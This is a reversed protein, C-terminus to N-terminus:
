ARATIDNQHQRPCHPGFPQSSSEGIVQVSSLLQWRGTHKVARVWELREIEASFYPAELLNHILALIDFTSGGRNCGASHRASWIGCLPSGTEMSLAAAAGAARMADAGVPHPAEIADAHGPAEKRGMEEQEKGKSPGNPAHRPMNPRAIPM